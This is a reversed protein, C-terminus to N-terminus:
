KRLVSKRYEMPTIGCMKKFVKSFYNPDHYGTEFTIEKISKKSDGLLGKAKEMRCQTLFDIYNIGLKEKFMKSIYIPSLEVLQGLSELSIDEHSHEFIYQKLKHFTDAELRDYHIVYLQKMGEFMHDTARKLESVNKLEYSYVPTEVEMGLESMVRAAVWLVELVRQQTSHISTGKKEYYTIMESVYRKIYEWQGLRIQDSFEKRQHIRPKGDSKNGIKPVDEYFRYKVPLSTDMTAILAHQYSQRIEKLSKCVSGIGIFWGDTKAKSLSILERALNLAQSRYTKEHDCCIIIPLQNGYIAGIWGTKRSRIKEKVLPYIHEEGAPVILLMVYMDTTYPIELMEVLLDVHVDHVHDFLLQTIIDTEALALTKQQQIRRKELSLHEAEIKELVKGIVSVIDSARSPKLLYDKVGLKIAQHLYEVTDYATVMIFQIDPFEDKIMKVAELGNIGPMKIDMLILDPHFTRAMEAAEQGNRAQEILLTSFSNELIAQMGEREIQEDDVLLLKMM